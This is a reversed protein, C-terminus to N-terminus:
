RFIKKNRMREGIVRGMLLYTERYPHGETFFEPRDLCESLPTAVDIYETGKWRRCIDRISDNSAEYGDINPLLSVCYIRIRKGYGRIKAVLAEYADADFGTSGTYLLVAKPMERRVPGNQALTADILKSTSEISGAMVEWGSGHNKIRSGPILEHWEGSQVLGDGIFIIDDRTTPQVSFYSCRLGFVSADDYRNQLSETEEPYVSRLGGMYPEIAKCWISYSLASIHLHDWDASYPWGVTKVGRLLGNLDIYTCRDTVDCIGKLMANTEAITSDTKGGGDAAPLISQLYIETRPSEKRVTEVTRRVKDAVFGTSRGIRLDNTGIMIFVKAPHGKVWSWVNELVEDSFGGSVGRSIVRPDNGFAESWNHMDTISNGVFVISSTDVRLGKFEDYRHRRYGPSACVVGATLVMAMMVCLLRRFYMDM